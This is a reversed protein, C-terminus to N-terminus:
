LISNFKAPFVNIHELIAVKRLAEHFSHQHCLSVGWAQNKASCQTVQAQSADTGRRLAQGATPSGFGQASRSLLPLPRQSGTLHWPAQKPLFVEPNIVMAANSCFNFSQKSAESIISTLTCKGAKSAVMEQAIQALRTHHGLCGSM